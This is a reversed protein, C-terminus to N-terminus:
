RHFKKIKIIIVILKNYRKKLVNVTKGFARLLREMKIIFYVMEKSNIILLIVKMDIVTIIIISEKEKLIIIKLIVKMDIEMIIIIYEKEKKKIMKGIEM